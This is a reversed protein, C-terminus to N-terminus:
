VPSWVGQYPYSVRPKGTLTFSAFLANITYENISVQVSSPTGNTFTVTLSVNTSTLGSLFPSNGGAPNGYLVMNQVSTLFQSSPTTTASDYPIIAAYRAAQAVATQLRNYQLLSYGFGFTGSFAALLVGASVAFELIAM